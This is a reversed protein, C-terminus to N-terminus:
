ASAADQHATRTARRFFQSEKLDYIEDNAAVARAKDVFRDTVWRLGEVETPTLIDPLVILGDRRYAALAAPWLM